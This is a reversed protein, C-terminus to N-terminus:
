LTAASLCKIYNFFLFNFFWELHNRFKFDQSRLLFRRSFLILFSFTFISLLIFIFFLPFWIMYCVKGVTIFTIPCLLKSIRWWTILTRYFCWTHIIIIFLWFAFTWMSYVWQGAIRYFFLIFQIHWWVKNFIFILFLNQIFISDLLIFVLEKIKSLLQFLIM